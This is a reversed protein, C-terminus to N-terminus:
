DDKGELQSLFTLMNEYANQMGGYYALGREDDKEDCSGELQIALTLATRIHKKMIKSDVMM